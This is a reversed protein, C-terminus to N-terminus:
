GRKWRRTRWCRGACSTAWRGYVGNPLNTRCHGDVAIQGRENVGLGVAAANLGDTNPVRGVSVILRDCELTAPSGDKDTYALSVGKKGIKTEGINVGTRINLGQKTFVKLAEKAVDVDAFPMFEPLAELVTVDSGLRRWVSGMELGIVGAGIVGLRKPV